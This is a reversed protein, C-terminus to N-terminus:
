KKGKIIILGEQVKVTFYQLSQGAKHMKLLLLTSPGFSYIVFLLKVVRTASVGAM